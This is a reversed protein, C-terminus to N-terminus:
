GLCYLRAFLPMLGFREIAYFAAVIVRNRLSEGNIKSSFLHNKYEFHQDLFTKTEYFHRLFEAKTAKRGSFLLYWVLYRYLYYELLEKDSDGCNTIIEELVVKLHLDKSLGKQSTNSVSKANYFWYYGVYPILGVNKTKSYALLNFVVDEGIGYDFFQIQKELLFDRRYIRAWPAVIIYKSWETNGVVEEHLITNESNIRKYGGIVIDLRQKTIENYFTEIYDKEIFDDNDIFMICESSALQIGLNRTKAVGMNEQDVIRIRADSNKLKELVALSQDKSGDNILLIEFNSFSQVLISQVCKEISKEANYVPIIITVEPNLM